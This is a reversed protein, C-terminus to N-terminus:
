EMLFLLSASTDENELVHPQQAPPLPEFSREGTTTIFDCTTHAVQVSEGHESVSM